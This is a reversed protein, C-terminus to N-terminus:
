ITSPSLPRASPVMQCLLLVPTALPSLCTPLGTPGQLGGRGWGATMVKIHFELNEDMSYIHNFIDRAIRPIIGMLQPDHLKGQPLSPMGSHPQPEPRTLCIVPGCTFMFPTTPPFVTTVM